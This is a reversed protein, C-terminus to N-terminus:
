PGPKRRVFTSRKGAAIDKNRLEVPDFDPHQDIKIKRSKDTAAIELYETWTAPLSVSPVRPAPGEARGRPGTPKRSNGTGVERDRTASKFESARSLAKVFISREQITMSDMETEIRDLDDPELNLEALSRSIQREARLEDRTVPGSDGGTSPEKASPKEEGSTADRTGRRYSALEDNVKKFRKEHARDREDLLAQVDKATLPVVTEHGNAGEDGAERGVQLAGNQTAGSPAGGGGAEQGADVTCIGPPIFEFSDRVFM